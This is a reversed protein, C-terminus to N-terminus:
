RCASWRLRGDPMGQASGRAAIGYLSGDPYQRKLRVNYAGRGLRIAPPKVAVVAICLLPYCRRIPQASM